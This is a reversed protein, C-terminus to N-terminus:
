ICNEDTHDSPVTNLEEISILFAEAYKQKEVEGLKQFLVPKLHDKIKSKSFGTYESLLANDMQNKEMHYYLPSFEGNLVAQRASETQSKIEEWAQTIVINKPEWGTSLAQVYRGNEDLVYYVDKVKGELLNRDDQPVEEKKM